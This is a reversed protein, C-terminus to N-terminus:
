ADIEPTGPTGSGFETGSFKRMAEIFESQDLQGDDNQDHM